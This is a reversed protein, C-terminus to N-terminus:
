QAPSPVMMLEQTNFMRLDLAALCFEVFDLRSVLGNGVGGGAFMDAFLSCLLRDYQGGEEPGGGCRPAETWTALLTSLAASSKVVAKMTPAHLAELLLSAELRGTGLGDLVDFFNECLSREDRFEGMAPALSATFDSPTRPLGAGLVQSPLELLPKTAAVARAHQLASQTLFYKLDYAVEDFADICFVGSDGRAGVGARGGDLSVVREVQAPLWLVGRGHLAWVCDGVQVTRRLRANRECSAVKWDRTAQPFWGKRGDGVLDVWPGTRRTLAEHEDDTRMHRRSVCLEKSAHKAAALWQNLSVASIMGNTSSTPELISLFKTWERRKIWSGFVTFKLWQKIEADRAIQSLNEDTLYGNKSKDLKNFAMRLLLEQDWKHQVHGHLAEIHRIENELALPFVDDFKSKESTKALFSKALSMSFGSDTGSSSRNGQSSIPEPRLVDEVVSSMNRNRLTPGHVESDSALAKSQQLGDLHMAILKFSDTSGHLQFLSDNMRSLCKPPDAPVLPKTGWSYYLIDNSTSTSFLTKMYKKREQLEGVANSYAEQFKMQKHEMEWKQQKELRKCWLELSLSYEDEIGMLRM